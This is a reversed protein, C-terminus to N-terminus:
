QKVSIIIKRLRDAELEKDPEIGLYQYLMATSSHGSIQLLYYDPIGLQHLNTLCGRRFTHSSIFEWKEGKVVTGRNNVRKSGIITSDIGARKALQKIYDNYKQESIQRFLGSKIVEIARKSTIPILVVKGTKQQKIRATIQTGKKIFTKSDMAMLDSVRQGTEYQITILRQTNLLYDPLDKVELIADMEERTLYIIKERDKKNQRPLKYLSFAPSVELGNREAFKAVTKISKLRKIITPQAYNSDILFNKFQDLQQTTTNQLTLRIGTSTEFNNLHNQVNKYHKITGKTLGFQGKANTMTKGADIYDTIYDSLYIQNTSKAERHNKARAIISKLLSGNFTNSDVPIGKKKAREVEEFWISRVKGMLLQAPHSKSYKGTIKGGNSNDFNEPSVLIDGVGRWRSGLSAQFQSRKGSFSFQVSAIVSLEKGKTTPRIDQKFYLQM